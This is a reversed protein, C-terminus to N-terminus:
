ASVGTPTWIVQDRRPGVSVGLILAGLERELYELYQRAKAPLDTLNRCDGTSSGWGPFTKYVPRVRPLLDSRTPFHAVPEGELEYSTAVQLEPLTDLVDLKTIVVGTMGNIDVAYRGAVLDFWGCRRARGTTAGFEAGLRRLSEAEDALIETPFPGNGVRTCYAKFVGIIEGLCRPPLGSGTIAGGVSPSSSTVFPYTGHDIDLLTGQAGEFLARETGRRVAALEEYGNVIMPALGRALVVLEQALTTAALPGAEYERALSENAALIKEIAKRELNEQPLLLDGMRLGTRVAKETYAPGIGRGTTGISRQRRRTEGLEDLRKHYPMILHAAASIRLRDRVKLGREEVSVIEDRLAWPDIVMGNGLFCRVGDRLIGAPLLHLVVKEDGHYITHGANAGGQYRIVRDVDASLADVIKGKGEDGWQGGIIIRNEL